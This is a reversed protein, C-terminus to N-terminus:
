VACLGLHAVYPDFDRDCHLLPLRHRICFAAILSDITKRVTIGRKRLFRYHRAAEIATAKGVLDLCDLGSLLTLVRRYSGDERFGRLVEALILDGMVVLERGLLDDLLDTERSPVGNFYNIWVSSDVLIM